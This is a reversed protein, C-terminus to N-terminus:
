RELEYLYVAADKSVRADLRHGNADLYTVYLGEEDVGRESQPHTFLFWIRQGRPLRELKRLITSVPEDSRAEQVVVSPPVSKLAPQELGTSADAFRLPWPFTGEWAECDDCEAYYRLAYQAQRHVYLMDGAQANEDLYRLLPRVHQSTPPSLLNSFGSAVPPLALFMAIPLALALPHRSLAQLEQVGRAIVLLMFPVLFLSYRGGLPYRDLAAAGFAAALPLTLLMLPYPEARHRVLAFGGIAFVLVALGNTGNEFGAPDVFLGWVAHVQRFIQLVLLRPSDDHSGGDGGFLAEAVRGTNESSVVYTGIFSALSGAGVISVLALRRRDAAQLAQTALTTAAAALVFVAPYSFWVAVVGMGALTLYRRSTLRSPTDLARCTVLLLGLAIAVDSAYPKVESSYYILPENVAFLTVALLRVRRPLLRHAVAVFLVLSALGALLPVLRLAYESDGFLEVVLKELLLFGPPAAQTYDLASLLGAASKDLINLALFAEDLWLSRNDLYRAIRLIAGVGVTCWLAADSTAILAIRALHSSTADRPREGERAPIETAPPTM